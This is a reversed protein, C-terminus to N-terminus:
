LVTKPKVHINASSTQTANGESDTVRASIYYSADQLGKITYTYTNGKNVADGLYQSGNYVAVKQIRHGFESAAKIKVPRRKGSHLNRM